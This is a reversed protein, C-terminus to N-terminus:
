GSDEGRLPFVRTRAVLSFGTVRVPGSDTHLAAIDLINCLQQRVMEAMPDDLLPTQEPVDALAFRFVYEKSM